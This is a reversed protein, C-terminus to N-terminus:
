SQSPGSQPAHCKHDTAIVVAECYELCWYTVIGAIGNEGEFVQIAMATSAM